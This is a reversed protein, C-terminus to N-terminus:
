LSSVRARKKSFLLMESFVRIMMEHLEENKEKKEELDTCIKYLSWFLSPSKAALFQLPIPEKVALSQLPASGVDIGNDKALQKLLACLEEKKEVLVCRDKFVKNNEDFVIFKVTMHNNLEDEDGNEFTVGDKFTKEVDNESGFKEIKSRCMACKTLEESCGACCFCHGCPVAVSLDLDIRNEFCIFCLPLDNWEDEKFQIDRIDDNLVASLRRMGDHKEADSLNAILSGHLSLDNNEDGGGGRGMSMSMQKRRKYLVRRIQSVDDVKLRTSQTYSYSM